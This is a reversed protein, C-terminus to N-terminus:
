SFYAFFNPSSIKRSSWLVFQHKCPGGTKGITCECIGLSMDVLYSLTTDTASPVRFTEHSEDIIGREMRQLEHENPKKFGIEGKSKSKGQFRKIYCTDFSGNAASLLKDKYHQELDVTLKEILATINYEKIRNLIFDKMVLFQAEANNNTNNGRMLYAERFSLGWSERYEYVGDLYAAFNPYKHQLLESEIIDNYKTELEDSTKVYILSKFISLLNQRDCKKVSHKKDHLWRWVQQLIHFVCLVLRSSPWVIKLADKLESCNDTM